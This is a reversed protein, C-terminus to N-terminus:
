GRPEGPTQSHSPLDDGLTCNCIFDVGAAVVDGTFVRESAEKALRLTEQNTEPAMIQEITMGGLKDSM